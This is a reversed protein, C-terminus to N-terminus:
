HNNNVYDESILNNIQCLDVLLRLRGNPKRQAPFPSAYNSFTLTTIIGYKHLLALEVTIGDKLNISTPLSAKAKHKDTMTQPSISKSNGTQGSTLGTDPLFITSNLSCNKWKRNNLLHSRQTLGILITLSHKELDNTMTHTKELTQLEVLEDFM